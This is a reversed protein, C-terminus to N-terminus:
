ADISNCSQIFDKMVIENAEFSIEGGKNLVSSLSNQDGVFERLVDQYKELNKKLDELESKKMSLKMQNLDVELEGNTEVISLSYIWFLRLLDDRSLIREVTVPVVKKMKSKVLQSKLVSGVTIATCGLLIIVV